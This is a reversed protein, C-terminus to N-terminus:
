FQNLFRLDPLYLDRLNTTVQHKMMVVREIGWGFAFGSYKKPDLGGNKLVQPHVMGAGGLELWGAKCVPCTKKNKKGSGKCISCNIDVEFSPETFQFHHPRLRIKRDPGFYQRAFYNSVGILHAISIDKDIMLGEFQHFMHSHTNSAQRRYTKGINIMKIPPQKVREMERLQGSSTHATLVINQNIYFTEQDDRAPHDKPINLGEAYYWDTEVEPYRRRIFGLSKFIDEIEEITQTLLHLHGEKPKIGPITVDLKKSTKINLLQQRAKKLHSDISNKLHNLDKGYTAKHSPSLSQFLHNVTGKRGLYKVKIRELDDINKLLSLDKSLNKQVQNIKQKM